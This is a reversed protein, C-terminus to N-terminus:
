RRLARHLHRTVEGAEPAAGVSVNALVHTAAVGPMVPGFVREFGLGGAADAAFGSRSRGTVWTPMHTAARSGTARRITRCAFALNRVGKSTTLGLRLRRRDESWGTTRDRYSMASMGDRCRGIGADWMLAYRSLRLDFSQGVETMSRCWPAAFAAGARKHAAIM